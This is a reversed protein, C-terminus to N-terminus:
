DQKPKQLQEDIQEGLVETELSPQTNQQQGEKSYNRERKLFLIVFQIRTVIFRMGYYVKRSSKFILDRVVVVQAKLPDLHGHLAEQVLRVIYFESGRHVISSITPNTMAHSLVDCVITNLFKYILEVSSKLPVIVPKLFIMIMNFLKIFPDFLYPILNVVGRLPKFVQLLPSLAAAFLMLFPKFYNWWYDSVVDFLDDLWQFWVKLVSFYYEIFKVIPKLYAQIFDVHRYLQWMAWLLSLLTYLILLYEITRRTSASYWRYPIYNVWEPLGERIKSPNKTHKSILSKKKLEKIKAIERTKAVKVLHLMNSAQSLQEISFTAKVMCSRLITYQYSFMPADAQANTQEDVQADAPSSSSSSLPSTEEVIKKRKWLLMPGDCEILIRSSLSDWSGFKSIVKLDGASIDACQLVSFVGVGQRKSAKLDPIKFFIRPTNAEHILLCDQNLNGSADGEEFIRIVQDPAGGGGVPMPRKEPSRYPSFSAYGQTGDPTVPWAPQSKAPSPSTPTPCSSSAASAFSKYTLRGSKLSHITIANTM